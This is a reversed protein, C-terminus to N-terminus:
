CCPSPSKDNLNIAMTKFFTEVFDPQLTFSDSRSELQNWEFNERLVRM